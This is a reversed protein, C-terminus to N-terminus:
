LVTITLLIQKQTLTTSVKRASRVCIRGYKKVEWSHKVIKLHTMLSRNLRRFFRTLLRENEVTLLHIIELKASNPIHALQGPLKPQFAGDMNDKEVPCQFMYFQDTDNPPYEQPLSKLINGYYRAIRLAKIVKYLHWSLAIVFGILMLLVTGM